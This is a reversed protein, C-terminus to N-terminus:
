TTCHDLIGCTAHARTGCLHDCLLGSHLKTHGGARLPTTGYMSVYHTVLLRNSPLLQPNYTYTWLPSCKIHLLVEEVAHRLSVAAQFEGEPLRSHWCLDSWDWGGSCRCEHKSLRERFYCATAKVVFKAATLYGQGRGVSQAPASNTCMEFVSFSPITCSQLWVRANRFVDGLKRTDLQHTSCLGRLGVGSRHGVATKHNNQWVSPPWLGQRLMASSCDIVAWFTGSEGYVGVLLGMWILCAFGRKKRHHCRLDQPTKCDSGLFHPACGLEKVCGGALGGLGLLSLWADKPLQKYRWALPAVNLAFWRSWASWLYLGPWVSQPEPVAELSMASREAAAHCQRGFMRAFAVWLAFGLWAVWDHQGFGVAAGSSVLSDPWTSPLGMAASCTLGTAMVLLKPHPHGPMAEGVSQVIPLIVM